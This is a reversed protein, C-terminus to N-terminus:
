QGLSLGLSGSARHKELAKGGGAYKNTPIFPACFPVKNAKAAAVTTTGARSLTELASEHCSLLWEGLSHASTVQAGLSSIKGPVTSQYDWGPEPM